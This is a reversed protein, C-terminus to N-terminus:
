EEETTSYGRAEQILESVYALQYEYGGVNRAHLYAAYPNHEEMMRLKENQITNRMDWFFIRWILGGM